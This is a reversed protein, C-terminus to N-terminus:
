NVANILHEIRPPNKHMHVGIVDIRITSKPYEQELAKGLLKLKQQKKYRVLDQAVGFKDGKVTKVEVLVITNKDKALVDIEGCFMNYNTDLIKYGIGILYKVALKEGVDGTKKNKSKDM